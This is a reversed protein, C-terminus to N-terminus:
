NSATLHHAERYHHNQVAGAQDSSDGSEDRAEVVSPEAAKAMALRPRTEARTTHLYPVLVAAAFGVMAVIVAAMGKLVSALQPSDNNRETM